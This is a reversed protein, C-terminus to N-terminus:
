RWDITYKDLVDQLWLFGFLYDAPAYKTPIRVKENPRNILNRVEEEPIGVIVKTEEDITFAIELSTQNAFSKRRIERKKSIMKM